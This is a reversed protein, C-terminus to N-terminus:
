VDNWALLQNQKIARRATRGVLLDLQAPPLGTGPRKCVLMERTITAGAPIDTDAAISVFYLQRQRLDEASPRLHYRGLAAEARRITAVYERFEQPELAHMHHHAPHAHDLTVRKELLNAGLAVSLLDPVPDRSDASFGVPLGFVGKLYPITRLNMEDPTSAHTCHVLVMDQNGQERIVGLLQDLEGLAVPGTDIQIPKRTQAMRRALPFNGGDWSSLKYGAVDLDEALDVGPVYDVTLYFILNRQQCRDRILRWQAPTFTLKKFMEYMNESREGGAWRYKYTVSKDSMFYDPDILMFKIADAGAEAAADIIRHATELDGNCTTGTEVVVFVPAGDGVTRGAFATSRM